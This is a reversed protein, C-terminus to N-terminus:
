LDIQNWICCCLITQGHPFQTSKVLNRDPFHSQLNPYFLILQPSTDNSHLISLKKLLFFFPVERGTSPFYSTNSTVNDLLNSILEVIIFSQSSFPFKPERPLIYPLYHNLSLNCDKIPCSFPPLNQWHVINSLQGYNYLISTVHVLFTTFCYILKVESHPPLVIKFEFSCWSFM